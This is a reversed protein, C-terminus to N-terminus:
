QQEAQARQWARDCMQALLDAGERASAGTPDGLVGSPSVGAVGRERLAPLIETLPRDEGKAARELRVAGGWLRAAPGAVSLGGM